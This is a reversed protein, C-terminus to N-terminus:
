LNVGYMSSNSFDARTLDSNPMDAEVLKANKMNAFKLQVSSLSEGDNHLKEIEACTNEEPKYDPNLFKEKSM